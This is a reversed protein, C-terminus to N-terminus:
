TSIETKEYLTRTLAELVSPHALGVQTYVAEGDRFFKFTPLPGIKLYLALGISHDVDLAMIQLHKYLTEMYELTADAGDCHKCDPSFFKVLVLGKSNEIAEKFNSEDLTKM